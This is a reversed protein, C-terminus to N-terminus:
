QGGGASARARIYRAAQRYSALMGIMRQVKPSVSPTGAGDSSVSEMLRLPGGVPNATPLQRFSTPRPPPDIRTPDPPVENLGLLDQWATPSPIEGMPPMHSYPADGFDEEGGEADAVATPGLDVGPILYRTNLEDIRTTM